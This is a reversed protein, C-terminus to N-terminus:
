SILRMLNDRVSARIREAEDPRPLVYQIKVPIEGEIVMDWAVKKLTGDDLLKRICGDLQGMCSLCNTACPTIDKTELTCTDGAKHQKHSKTFQYTM